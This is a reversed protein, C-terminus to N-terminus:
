MDQAVIGRLLQLRAKRATAAVGAHSQGPVHALHDLLDIVQRVHRVFDGPAVAANGISQAFGEGKAWRYVASCLGPHPAPTQDLGARREQANIDDALVSLAYLARSVSRDDHDESGGEERRPEYSLASAVAALAAPSLGDLVGQDLAECVILDRESYIRKLLEGKATVTVHRSTDSEGVYGLAELVARVRDFQRVLQSTRQAITREARAAERAAKRYRSIWRIHQERDDCHHCPHERLDERLQVLLSDHNPNASKESSRARVAARPSDEGRLKERLASATDKRVRASRVRDLSPVRMTTLVMPSATFDETYLDRLQGERTIVWVRPGRVTKDHDIVVAFGSRRGGPIAIVEGRRLKGVISRTRERQKDARTRSLEKERASIKELIDAYQAIDGKSCHMAERYQEAVEQKERAKRAQAVVSRDTHFQAFSSELTEYAEDLSFRGLLNVAMNYTPRFASHLKYTRTSALGAVDQAAISSGVVVVAHGEVDIGRRGARGTLQTYEGPTIKAHETGNFKTLKDLVVTRAPMNIGLALTETACVVKILGRAFLDEIVAKVAPLQGAHHAALGNMAAREIRGIGLADYDDARLDGLAARFAEKIQSREADDTLRVNARMLQAVAQDCGSRSFIFFIAPLMGREELLYIVDARSMARPRMRQEHRHSRHPGRQDNRRDRYGRRGSRGSKRGRGHRKGGYRHGDPVDDWTGKGIEALMPNVERYRRHAFPGHSPTARGDEDLFVDILEHDNLVHQWLPIPRRESVIVETSGRVEEIWAGFEEVNSVTASLAVLQVSRPSHIIIEEWVPGRMRDALYHVEDMVVYGLSHLTPSDAYMMNRLIETTMVVVQAESNVNVDGTVLGVSEHGLWEVLEQYKQNSLAKIPTTYFVKVGHEMARHVAYEGVITKGAGTPAAVLVSSGRDLADMASLQFPDLDFAFRATFHGRLGTDPADNM